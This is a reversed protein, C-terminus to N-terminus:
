SRAQKIKALYRYVSKQSIGLVEAAKAVAGKLEFFGADYLDVIVDVRDDADIAGPELCERALVQEILDLTPAEKRPPAPEEPATDDLDRPDFRNMDSVFNLLRLFMSSHAAICLAASPPDEEKEGPVFFVSAKLMQSYEVPMARNACYGQRRVWGSDLAQVVLGRMAAISIQNANRHYVAPLEDKQLDFLVAEFSSGLTEGLFDVLNMWMTRQDAM